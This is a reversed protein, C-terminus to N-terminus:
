NDIKNSYKRSKNNHQKRRGDPQTKQQKTSRTKKATSTLHTLSNTGHKTHAHAHRTCNQRYTDCTFRKTKSTTTVCEFVHGARGNPSIKTKNKSGEKSICGYVSMQVSRCGAAYMQSVKQRGECFMIDPSIEGAM